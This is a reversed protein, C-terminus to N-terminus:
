NVQQWHAGDSLTLYVMTQIPFKSTAVWWHSAM